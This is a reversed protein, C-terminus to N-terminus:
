KTVGEARLIALARSLRLQQDDSLAYGDYAIGDAWQLVIAKHPQGHWVAFAECDEGTGKAPMVRDFEEPGKAAEETLACIVNEVGDVTLPNELWVHCGDCHQATDAEGGGDRYPGKPYDDSDYTFEDRRNAPRKGESDLRARIAEGCSECYLAAQFM